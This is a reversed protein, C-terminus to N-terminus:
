SATLRQCTRSPPRSSNDISQWLKRPASRNSNIEDLWFNSRKTNLLRRYKRTQDLWLSRNTARDDPNTSRIYHRQLLGAVRKEDRCSEDYWPDSSRKRITVTKVPIMKDLISTVVDNYLSGMQDVDLTNLLEADCLTSHEVASRFEDVNLRSWSRRTSTTYPPPKVRLDTSWKILLHDSFGTNILTTTPPPLDSRTLLVDLLGGRDHTPETVRNNFGFSDILENFRKCNPDDPRDLRINVDGTVILPDSSTALAELMASLEDFFLTSVPQSGPRYILLVVCSSGHSTVRSCLHEFSSTSGTNLKTLRITPSAIIAVGGFNRYHITDANASAKLPRAREFVQFGETRLRRLDIPDSELHTETLCLIGIQEDKALQKIAELSKGLSRINHTAGVLQETKQCDHRQLHPRVLSRDSRRIPRLVSHRTSNNSRAGPRHGVITPISSSTVETTSEPAMTFDLAISPSWICQMLPVTTSLENYDVAAISPSWICNLQLGESVDDPLSSMSSSWICCQQMSGTPQVSSTMTSPSPLASGDILDIRRERMRRPCWLGLSFITKRARRVVKVDNRRLQRLDNASYKQM